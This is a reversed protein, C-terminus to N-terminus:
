FNFPVISGDLTFEGFTNSNYTSFLGYRLNNIISSDIVTQDTGVQIGNYFVQFTNGSPRRIEIAAGFVFTAAASVLNTYTGSVCKDLKINTGDYYAILFNQPNSASDVLSAVGTQTGPTVATIRAAAIQTNSSGVVTAFTNAFTIVKVSANDWASTALAVQGDELAIWTAATTARGTVTISRAMGAYPSLSFVAGPATTAIRLRTYNAGSQSVVQAVAQVWSGLINGVSQSLLMTISSSGQTFVATGASQAISGGGAGPTSTWSSLATDFGTNTLLEAELTPTNYARGLADVSWTTESWTLALTPLYSNLVSYQGETGTAYCVFNDFTNASYTSFLGHKANVIVTADTISLESGILVNNYYVRLKLTTGETRTSVALVANSVFSTATTALNSYTGSVCKDIKITSGDLYILFFNLPNSQSDVCIALGAQTGTTLAVIQVSILVDPTSVSLIRLLSTLTLPKMSPADFHVVDTATSSINRLRLDGATSTARGSLIISQWSDEGSTVKFSISPQVPTVQAMNVGVNSSPSYAMVSLLYWTGLVLTPQQRAAAAGSGGTAIELGFNNAGGTPAINPSSSYDRRTLVAGSIVTWGSTDTTFETNTLIEAGILPLTYANGGTVSWSTYDSINFIGFSNAAYTSFLCHKTGSVVSADTITQDAGVQVGNYFAQYVNGNKKIGLVAGSVYTVASSILNTWTNSVLKDLKLNTGDHYLFVGNQPNSENDIQVAVGAQTGVTLTPTCRTVYDTSSYTTASSLLSSLTMEKVSVNDLNYNHNEAGFIFFRNNSNNIIRSAGVIGTTYGLSGAISGSTTTAITFRPATGSNLVLGFSIFYWKGVTTAFTPSSVYGGGSTNVAHLTGSQWELTEEEFGTTHTVWGSIDTNFTGNTVLESGLSPNPVVVTYSTNPVWAVNGGGSGLGGAIGEAHGLGDTQPLVSAFGDSALPTPLWLDKPIKIYNALWGNISSNVALAPYPNYSNALGNYLLLFNNTSHSFYYAGNARLVILFRYRNGGTITGVVININNDLIRLTTASSNFSTAISTTQDNDFGFQFGIQSSYVIESLGIIGPLRTIQPYWIGPNGNGSGGTEISLAGQVISLKGNTDVVTRVGGTPEAATGNVSGAALSTLFDDFLFYKSASIFMPLFGGGILM